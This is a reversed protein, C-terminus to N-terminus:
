KIATGRLNLPPKPTSPVLICVSNSFSSDGAVVSVASMVYCYTTAQTVTIDTYTTSTIALPTPNLAVFLPPQALDCAVGQCRYVRFGDATASPPVGQMYADWTLKVGAADARGIGTALLFLLTLLVIFVLYAPLCLLRAWRSEVYVKIRM